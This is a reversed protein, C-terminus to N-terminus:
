RMPYFYLNDTNVIATITSFRSSAGCPLYRYGDAGDSGFSLLSLAKNWTMFSILFHGLNSDIM